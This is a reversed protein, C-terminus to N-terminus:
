GHFIAVNTSSPLTRWAQRCASTKLRRYFPPSSQGSISRQYALISDQLLSKSSLKTSCTIKAKESSSQPKTAKCDNASPILLISVREGTVSPQQLGQSTHKKYWDRVLGQARPLKHESATQPRKRQDREETPGKTPYQKPYSIEDKIAIVDNRRYSFLTDDDAKGDAKSAEPVYSSSRHSLIQPKSKRPSLATKCRTNADMSFETHGHNFKTIQTRYCGLRTFPTLPPKGRFFGSEISSFDKKRLGRQCTSCYVNPTIRRRESFPNMTIKTGKLNPARDLLRNEQTKAYILPKSPKQILPTVSIEGNNPMPIYKKAAVKQFPLPSTGICQISSRDEADKTFTSFTGSKDTRPTLLEECDPLSNEGSSNTPTNQTPTSYTLLNQPTSPPAVRGQM